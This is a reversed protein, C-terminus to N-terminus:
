WYHPLLGALRRATQLPHGPPRGEANAARAAARTADDVARSFARQLGIWAAEAETMPTIRPMMKRDMRGPMM